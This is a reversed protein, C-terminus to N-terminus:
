ASCLYSILPSLSCYEFDITQKNIFAAFEPYSLLYSWTMEVRGFLNACHQNIAIRKSKGYYKISTLTDLAITSM